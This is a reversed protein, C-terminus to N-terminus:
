FKNIAFAEKDGAIKLEVTKGTQPLRREFYATVQKIEDIVNKKM